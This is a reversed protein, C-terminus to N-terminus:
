FGFRNPTSAYPLPLVASVDSAIQVRFAPLSPFKLFDRRLNYPSMTVFEQSLKPVDAFIRTQSYASFLLDSDPPLNFMGTVRNFRTKMWSYRTSYGFLDDDSSANGTVKIEKNTIPEFGLEAYIPWFVSDQNLDFFQHEAGDSYTTEPSIIMVGMIYGFDKSEFHCIHGNSQSAGLGAQMGLPSDSTGSSTQTIAEFNLYDVTGGIYRPEFDKHDPSRGFQAKIRSNYSGNTLADIEAKISVAMLTRLKNATLGVTPTGVLSANLLGAISSSPIDYSGSSLSVNSMYDQMDQGEPLSGFKNVYWHGQPTITRSLPYFGGVGGTAYYGIANEQDFSNCRVDVEGSLSEGAKGALDISLGTVDTPLNTETGRVLWPKANIFRDNDFMGYRLQMLNICNDQDVYQGQANKTGVKPVFCAQRNSEAPLVINSPVFHGTESDLNSAAMDFRWSNNSIDDPFWVKNAQMLNPSLYNARYIKQYALFQMASFKSLTATDQISNADAAPVCPLFNRAYSAGGFKRPKFGLYSMLSGPSSLYVGDQARNFDSSDKYVHTAFSGKISPKNLIVSDDRGKTYFSDAGTWLSEMDIYYYHTRIKYSTMPPVSLPFTNLIYRLDLDYSANPVTEICDIPYIGGLDMTTRTFRSLDFRSSKPHYEQTSDFPIGSSGFKENIQTQPM